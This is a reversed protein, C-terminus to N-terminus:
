HPMFRSDDSTQQTNNFDQVNSGGTFRVSERAREEKMAKEILKEDTDGLAVLVLIAFLPNILFSLFFWGLGSRGQKNAIAAVCIPTIFFYLLGIIILIIMWKEM